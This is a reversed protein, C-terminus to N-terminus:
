EGLQDLLIHYQLEAFRRMEESENEDSALKMLRSYEEKGAFSSWETIKRKREEINNTTYFGLAGRRKLLMDYQMNLDEDEQNIGYQKTANVMAINMDIMENIEFLVEEKFKEANKILRNTRDEARKIKSVEKYADIAIIIFYVTILFSLATIIIGVMSIMHEISPQLYKVDIDSMCFVLAVISIVLPLYYVFKKM